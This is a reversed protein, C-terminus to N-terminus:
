HHQKSRLEINSEPIGWLVKEHILCGDRSFKIVNKSGQMCVYICVYMCVSVISLLLFYASVGVYMCVYMCLSLTKFTCVYMCVYM